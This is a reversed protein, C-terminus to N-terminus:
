VIDRELSFMSNWVFAWLTYAKVVVFLTIPPLGRLNLTTLTAHYWGRTAFMDQKLFSAWYLTNPASASWCNKFYFPLTLIMSGGFMSHEERLNLPHIPSILTPAQLVTLFHSLLFLNLKEDVLNETDEGELLLYVEILVAVNVLVYRWLHEEGKYCQEM